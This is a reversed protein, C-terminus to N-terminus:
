SKSGNKSARKKFAKQLEDQSYRFKSKENKSSKDRQKEAGKKQKEEIEKSKKGEIIEIIKGAKDELQFFIGLGRIYGQMDEDPLSGLQKGYVKVGTLFYDANLKDMCDRTKSLFGDSYKVVDARIAFKLLKDIRSGSFLKIIASRYNKKAFELITQWGNYMCTESKLLGKLKCTLSEKSDCKCDKLYDKLDAVLEGYYLPFDIKTSKFLKHEFSKAMIVVEMM